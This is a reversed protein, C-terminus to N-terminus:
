KGERLFSLSLFFSLWVCLQQELTPSTSNPAPPSSIWGSEKQIHPLPLAWRHWHNGQQPLLLLAPHISLTSARHMALPMIAYKLRHCPPLAGDRRSLTDASFALRKKASGLSLIMKEWRCNSPVQSQTVAAAIHLVTAQLHCCLHSFVPLLFYFTIPSILSHFYFPSINMWCTYSLGQSFCNKYVTGTLVQESANCTQKSCQFQEPRPLNANDTCNRCCCSTLFTETKSRILSYYNQYCCGHSSKRIQISYELPEKTVLPIQNDGASPALTSHFFWLGRKPQTNLYRSQM